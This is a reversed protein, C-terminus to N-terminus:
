KARGSQESKRFVKAIKGAAFMPPSVIAARHAQSSDNLKLANIVFLRVSLRETARAYLLHAFVECLSAIVTGRSPKGKNLSPYCNAADVSPVTQARQQLRM